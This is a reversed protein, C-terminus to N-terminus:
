RLVSTDFQQLLMSTGSEDLVDFAALVADIRDALEEQSGAVIFFRCAIQKLTGRGEVVDGGDYSPNISIVGDVAASDKLGVIRKIRGTRVLPSLKCGFLGHLWPDAKAAIPYPAMQGSLAYSILLEKADIGTCEDILIHEQAGNLRFGPEYIKVDGNDVFAQLFLVGNRVGMGKLMSKVRPDTTEIYRALYQSPYIYSTPLQAVGQQEKNTYRDCMGILSPEGEQILYYIVVEEGTMYRECLVADSRSFARAAAVGARLEAENRCISIGKSSCSDVPKIVVPYQIAQMDDLNYESVVPVGYSRCVDKFQDKTVMTTTLEKTTFCPMGLRECVERYFPLLAEAVGVLVGDIQQEQVYAVLEDVHSADINVPVRAYRKAYATPNYDAVHTTIGMGNAKIVLSATEPNAGMILLSKGSFRQM